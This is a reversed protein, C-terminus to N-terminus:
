IFLFQYLLVDVCYLSPRTISMLCSIFKTFDFMCCIYHYVYLSVNQLFFVNKYHIDNLPEVFEISRQFLDAQSVLPHVRAICPLLEEMHTQLWRVFKAIRILGQVSTVLFYQYKIILNNILNLIELHNGHLLLCSLFWM